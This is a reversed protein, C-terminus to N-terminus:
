LARLGALLRHLTEADSSWREGRGAGRGPGALGARLESAHRVPRGAARISITARRAPRRRRPLAPVGARDHPPAVPLSPALEAVM